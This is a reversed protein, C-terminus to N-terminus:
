VTWLVDFMSFTIEPTGSVQINQVQGSPLPQGREKGFESLARVVDAHQFIVTRVETIM